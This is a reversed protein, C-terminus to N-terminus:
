QFSKEKKAWILFMRCPDRSWHDWGLFMGKRPLLFRVKNQSSFSYFNCLQLVTPCLGCLLLQCCHQAGLCAQSKHNASGLRAPQLGACTSGLHFADGVGCAASRERSPCAFLLAAEGCAARSSGCLHCKRAARQFREQFTM